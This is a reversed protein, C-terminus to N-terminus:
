ILFLSLLHWVKNLPLINQFVIQVPSNENISFVMQFRMQKKNDAPVKLLIGAMVKQKMATSIPASTRM